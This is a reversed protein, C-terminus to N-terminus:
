AAGAELKALLVRELDGITRIAAEDAADLCVEFRDEVAVALSLLGISDLRLDEVLRLEPLLPGEYGLGAAIEALAAQVDRRVDAALPRTSTEM